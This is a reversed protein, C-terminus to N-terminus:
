KGREEEMNEALEQLDVTIALLGDAAPSQKESALDLMGPPPDLAVWTPIESPCIGSGGFKRDRWRGREAPLGSGPDVLIPEAKVLSSRAGQPQIENPDQWRAPARSMVWRRRTAIRPFPEGATATLRQHPEM